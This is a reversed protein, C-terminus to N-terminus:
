SSLSSFLALEEPEKNWDVYDITGTNDSFVYKTASKPVGGKTFRIGENDLVYVDLAQIPNGPTLDKIQM